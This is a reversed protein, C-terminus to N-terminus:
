AAASAGKEHVETYEINEFPLVRSQKSVQHMSIQSYRKEQAKATAWLDLWVENPAVKLLNRIDGFIRLHHHITAELGDEFKKKVDPISDGQVAYDIEFGQAFWFNGDPVILVRLNWIGVAHNGDKDSAQIAMTQSTPKKKAKKEGSTTHHKTMASVSLLKKKLEGREDVKTYHIACGVPRSSTPV